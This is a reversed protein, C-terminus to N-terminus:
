CRTLQVCIKRMKGGLVAKAPVKCVCATRLVAHRLDWIGQLRGTGPLQETCTLNIKACKLIPKAM